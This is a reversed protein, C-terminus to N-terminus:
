LQLHFRHVYLYSYRMLWIGEHLWKSVIGPIHFCDPIYHPVCIASNIWNVWRMSNNKSESCYSTLNSQQIYILLVRIPSMSLLKGDKEINLHKLMVFLTSSVYLVIWHSHKLIKKKCFICHIRIFFFGTDFICVWVSSLFM